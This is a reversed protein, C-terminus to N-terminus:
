PICVALTLMPTSVEFAQVGTLYAFLDAAFLAEDHVTLPSSRLYQDEEFSEVEISLKIVQEYM